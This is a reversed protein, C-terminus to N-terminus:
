DGGERNSKANRGSRRRASLYALRTFYAKRAAKARRTRERESLRRGPDVLDLFRRDFAQRAAATTVRADYRAHLAYAGIRSRQSREAPTLSERRGVM